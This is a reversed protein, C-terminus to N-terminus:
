LTSRWARPSSVRGEETNKVRIPQGGRVHLLRDPLPRLQERRRNVEVCTSFVRVARVRERINHTSRWARPSSVFECREDQGM